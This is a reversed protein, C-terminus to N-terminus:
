PSHSPKKSPSLKRNIPETVAREISWGASLRASLTDSGTNLKTAWQAITLNEGNFFLYRNNRSNNNQQAATAWRCNEPSYGLNNDQRDLSHDPSPKEGMDAFFNEFSNQWRECVTIGRGGYNGFAANTPNNCRARMGQWSQYETTHIMGHSTKRGQGCGCSETNGSKRRLHHGSVVTENGCDCRCLWTATRHITSVFGLVTLRGFRLGTMDKIRTNPIPQIQAVTLSSM